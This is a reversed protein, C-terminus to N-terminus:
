TSSGEAGSEVTPSAPATRRRRPAPIEQRVDPIDLATLLQSGLFRYARGVRSGRIKGDKVWRRMTADSVKLIRCVDRITYVANPRIDGDPEAM